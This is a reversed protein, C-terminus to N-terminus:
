ASFTGEDKKNNTAKAAKWSWSICFLPSEALHNMRTEVDATGVVLHKTTRKQSFQRVFLFHPMKSKQLLLNNPIFWLFVTYKTQATIALYFTFLVVQLFKILLFDM